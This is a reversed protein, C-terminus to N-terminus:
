YYIAFIGFILSVLIYLPNKFWFPKKKNFLDRITGGGCSTIIGFLVAIISFDNYSLATKTGNYAFVCTSIYDLILFIKM